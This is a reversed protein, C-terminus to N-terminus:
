RNSPLYAIAQTQCNEEHYFQGRGDSFSVFGRISDIPRTRRALETGEFAIQGLTLPTSYYSSIAAISLSSYTV